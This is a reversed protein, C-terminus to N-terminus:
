VRIFTFRPIFICKCCTSKERYTAPVGQRHGIETVTGCFLKRLSDFYLSINLFFIKFQFFDIYSFWYNLITSLRAVSDSYVMKISFPTYTWKFVM